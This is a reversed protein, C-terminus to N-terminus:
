SIFGVLDEFKSPQIRKISLTGTDPDLTFLSRIANQCVPKSGTSGKKRNSDKKSNELVLPLNRYVGLEKREADLEVDSQSEKVSCSM